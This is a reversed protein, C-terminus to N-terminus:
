LADLEAHLQRALELYVAKEDDDLAFRIMRAIQSSGAHLRDMTARRADREARTQRPAATTYLGYNWANRNTVRRLTINASM